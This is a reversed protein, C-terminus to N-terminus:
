RGVDRHRQLFPGALQPYAAPSVSLSRAASVSGTGAAAAIGAPALTLLTVSAVAALGMLSRTRQKTM